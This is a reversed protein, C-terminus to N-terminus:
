AALAESEVLEEDHTEVHVPRKALHRGLQAVLHELRHEVHHM